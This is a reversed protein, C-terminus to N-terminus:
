KTLFHQMIKRNVQIKSEPGGFIPTGQEKFGPRVEPMGLKMPNKDEGPRHVIRIYDM